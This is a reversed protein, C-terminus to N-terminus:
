IVRASFFEARASKRCKPYTFIKVYICYRYIPASADKDVKKDPFTNVTLALVMNSNATLLLRAGRRRARRRARRRSTFVVPPRRRDFRLSPSFVLTYIYKNKESHKQIAIPCSVGGSTSAEEDKTGGGIDFVLAVASTNSSSVFDENWGCFFSFASPSVHRTKELVSLNFLPMSQVILM